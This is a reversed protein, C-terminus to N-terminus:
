DSDSDRGRLARQRVPASAVESESKAATRQDPSWVVLPPRNKKNRFWNIAKLVGRQRIIWMEFRRKGPFDLLLLGAVAVVMGQGPVLPMSLILGLLVLLLGLCNKGFHLLLRMAPHRSRGKYPPREKTSFYDDPIFAVVWPMAILTGITVILSLAGLWWLMVEHQEIWGIFQNLYHSLVQM